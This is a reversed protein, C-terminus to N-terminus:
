KFMNTFPRAVKKLSAVIGDWNVWPEPALTALYTDMDPEGLLFKKAKVLPVYHTCMNEKMSCTSVIVVPNGKAVKKAALERLKPIIKYNIVLASVFGHTYPFHVVACNVSPLSVQQYKLKKWLDMVALEQQDKETAEVIDANKALLEKKVKRTEADVALWGVAFRSRPGGIKTPDDLFITYMRDDYQHPRLGVDKGIVVAVSPAAAYDRKAYKYVLEGGPFIGDEIVVPTLGGATLVAHVFFAAMVTCIVLFQKRREPSDRPENMTLEHYNMLM